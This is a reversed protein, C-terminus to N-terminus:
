QMLGFPGLFLYWSPIWYALLKNSSVSTFYLSLPLCSLSPSGEPESHLLSPLISGFFRLHWAKIELSLRGLGDHLGGALDTWRLLRVGLFSAAETMTGPERAPQFCCWPLVSVSQQIELTGASARPWEPEKYDSFGTRMTALILWHLDKALWTNNSLFPLPPGFFFFYFLLVCLITTCLWPM